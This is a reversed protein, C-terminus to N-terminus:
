GKKLREITKKLEIMKNERDIAMRYFDELEGVRVKMEEELKKHETVDILFGIVEASAHNGDKIITREDRVWVYDGNEDIFRYEHVHYGGEVVESVADMFGAEEDGHLHSIWFDHVGYIDEPEYGLLAKVNNSIFTINYPAAPHYTYVVVPNFSLLYEMREEVQQREFKETIDSLVEVFSTIKGDADRLPYSSTEIYSPKGNGDYHKHVVRNSKGTEFVEKVSCEEGNEFCPTEYHHSVKYCHRGIISECSLDVQRCFGRNASIIKFDGDVVVVGEGIGDLISTLFENSEKLKKGLEKERTVDKLVEVMYITKGSADKIPSATIDFFMDAKLCHRHTVKVTEGNEFVADHPCKYDAMNCPSPCRHSLKHCKEGIVKEPLLGCLDMFARNAFTIRYDRDVVILGDSISDFMEFNLANQKM